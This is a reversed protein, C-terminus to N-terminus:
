FDYRWQLIARGVVAGAGGAIIASAAAAFPDVAAGTGNSMRSPSVLASIVESGGSFHPKM